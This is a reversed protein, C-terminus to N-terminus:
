FAKIGQCNWCDSFQASHEEGCNECIWSDGNEVEKQSRKILEKAWAEMDSDIVWLEPWAVLMPIEGVVASLGDNKVMCEIGEQELLNKLHYITLREEATHIQKM